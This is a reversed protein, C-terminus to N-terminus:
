TLRRPRGRLFAYLGLLMVLVNGFIFLSIIADRTNLGLPDAFRWKHLTQFVTNEFAGADDVRAALHGGATEIYLRPRGPTNFAVRLVPLRKDIFGYEGAYRTIPTIGTIAAADLGSFRLALDRAYAADANDHIDGNKTDIYSVTPWPTTKPAGGHRHGGRKPAYGDLRYHARGDIRALALAHVPHETWALIERLSARLETVQFREQAYHLHREDPTFKEYAHLAGSLAWMLSTASVVLGVIRHWRQARTCLRKRGLGYLILGSVALAAYILMATIFVNIRLADGTDMFDWRHLLGFLRLLTARRDDVATGLRAPATEVYLRIHDPRDFDIRWVPLLRNIPAYEKNFRTVLTRGLVGSERDGLIDRALHEAYRADGKALREGTRTDIYILVPDDPLAVQYYGRGEFKVLHIDRIAAIGNHKLAAGPELGLDQPLLVEPAIRPAALEPKSLRLLPHILGSLSWAILPVALLAGLWKHALYLTRTM